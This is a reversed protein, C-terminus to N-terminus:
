GDFDRIRCRRLKGGHSRERRGVCLHQCQGLLGGEKKPIISLSLEYDACGPNDCDDEIDEFVFSGDEKAMFDDEDLEFTDIGDALSENLTMVLSFNLVEPGFLSPQSPDVEEFDLSVSMADGRSNEYEGSIVKMDEVSMECFAQQAFLGMLLSVVLFKMCVEWDFFYNVGVLSLM